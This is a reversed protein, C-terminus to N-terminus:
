YATRSQYHRLRSHAWPSLIINISTVNNKTENIMEAVTIQNHRNIKLQCLKLSVTASSGSLVVWSLISANRPKMDNNADARSGVSALDSRLGSSLILAGQPQYFPQSWPCTTGPQLTMGHRQGTPRVHALVRRLDYRRRHHDFGHHDGLGRGANPWHEADRGATGAGWWSATDNLRSQFM